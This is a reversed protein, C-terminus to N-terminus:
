QDMGDSGPAPELDYLSLDFYLVKGDKKFEFCGNKNAHINFGGGWWFYGSVEGMTNADSTTTANVLELDPDVTNHGVLNRTFYRWQLKKDDLLKKDESMVQLQEATHYVVKVDKNNMIKEYLLNFKDVPLPAIEKKYFGLPILFHSHGMDPFILADVYGRIFAKEVHKGVTKVFQEPIRVNGGRVPGEPFVLSKMAEDYYARKGLRKESGYMTSGLNKIEELTLNWRFDSSYVPVEGPLQAACRKLDPAAAAFVSSFVILIGVLKNM